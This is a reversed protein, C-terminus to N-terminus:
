SPNHNRNPVPFSACRRPPVIGDGRSASGGNAEIAKDLMACAQEYSVGRDSEIVYHLTKATPFCADERLVSPVGRVAINSGGLDVVGDDFAGLQKASRVKEECEAAFHTFVKNQFGIPLGLIRNLFTQACRLPAYADGYAAM